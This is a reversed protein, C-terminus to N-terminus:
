RSSLGITGPDSLKAHFLAVKKDTPANCCISLIEGGFGSLAGVPLGPM